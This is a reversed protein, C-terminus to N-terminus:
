PFAQRAAPYDQRSILFDLTELELTVAQRGLRAALDLNTAAEQTLHRAYVWDYWFGSGPRGHDLGTKFKEDVLQRGQALETCAENTQGNQYYAM